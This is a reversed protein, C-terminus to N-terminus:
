EALLRAAEVFREMQLAALESKVAPNRRVIEGLDAKRLAYYEVDTIATVTANRPVANLASSEGFCDYPELIALLVQRGGSAATVEVQGSKLLFFDTEAAGERALVDGPRASLPMMRKIVHEREDPTLTRFVRSRALMLDLARRRAVQEWADRLKRYRNLIPEAAAPALALTETRRTARVTVSRPSGTLFSIEGALEGAAIKGVPSERGAGDRGFAALEGSIVFHLAGGGDGERFLEAGAETVVLSLQEVLAGLIGAPVGHLAPHAASAARIAEREPSFAPEPAAPAAPPAAPAFPPPTPTAKGAAGQAERLMHLALFTSPLEGKPDIQQVRSLVTSAEPARGARQLASGTRALVDIASARNGADLYADVLATALAVNAPEAMHRKKADDLRASKGSSKLGGFLGM